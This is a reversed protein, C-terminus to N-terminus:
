FHKKLTPRQPQNAQLFAHAPHQMFVPPMHSPMPMGFPFQEGSLGGMPPMSHMTPMTPLGGPMPFPPHGNVPNIMARHIQM